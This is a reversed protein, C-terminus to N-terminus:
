LLHKNHSAIEVDAIRLELDGILRQNESRLRMSERHLCNTVHAYNVMFFLFLLTLVSLVVYVPNGTMALM